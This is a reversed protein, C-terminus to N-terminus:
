DSGTMLEITFSAGLESSDNLLLRGPHREIIHRALWLGIGMGQSKSSIAIDFLTDRLLPSIGPGNDTITIYTHEQDQKTTIKIIREQDNITNLSHIANDILNILVHELEGEIVPIARPADWVTTIVIGTLKKQRELLHLVGAILQDVVRLERPQPKIQFLNRIHRVTEAARLNDASATQLLRGLRSNQSSQPSSELEALASDLNLRVSALPQNVEHAISASVAGAQALRGLEVMRNLLDERETALIAQYKADQERAAAELLLQSSEEIRRHSKELRFGWYGFSYFFVSLLNVVISINTLTSFSLLKNNEGSVIWWVVRSLNSCIFASFSLIVVDLAKSCWRRKIKIALSILWIELISM